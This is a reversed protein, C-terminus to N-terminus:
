AGSAFVITQMVQSSQSRFFTHFHILNNDKIGSLLGACATLGTVQILCAGLKSRLLFVSFGSTKQQTGRDGGVLHSFLEKVYAV